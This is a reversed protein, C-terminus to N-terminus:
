LTKVSYKANYRSGSADKNKKDNVNQKLKRNSRSNAKLLSCYKHLEVAVIIQETNFSVVLSKLDWRDAPNKQLSFWVLVHWNNVGDFM